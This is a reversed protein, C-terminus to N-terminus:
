QRGGMAAAFASMAELAICGIQVGDLKLAYCGDGQYDAVYGAPFDYSQPISSM